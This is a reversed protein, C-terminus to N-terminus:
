ISAIKLIVFQMELSKNDLSLYGIQLNSKEGMADSVMYRGSSELSLWQERCLFYGLEWKPASKLSIM